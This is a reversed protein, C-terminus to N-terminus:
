PFYIGVTNIKKAVGGTTVADILQRRAHRITERRSRHHGTMGIVRIRQAQAIKRKHNPTTFLVSGVLSILHGFFPAFTKFFKLCRIRVSIKVLGGDDFSGAMPHVSGITSRDRPHSLVFAIRPWLLHNPMLRSPGMFAKIPQLVLVRDFTLRDFRGDFFLGECNLRVANLLQGKPQGIRKDIQIRGDTNDEVTLTNM